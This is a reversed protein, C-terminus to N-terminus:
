PAPGPPILPYGYRLLLPLTLVTVLWADRRPLGGHWEVDPRVTIEGQRFSLPNGSLCHSRTPDAAAAAVPMPRRLFTALRGLTAVPDSVLDEYAVRVYRGRRHLLAEATLNMFMWYLAGKVVGYRPMFEERDRVDPLRLTKRWSHVVGRPDRVVHAARLDYAGSQALAYGYFANKSSDVVLPADVGDGVGVAAAYVAMQEFGAFPGAGRRGLLRDRLYRLNAMWRRRGVPLRRRAAEAGGFARRMAEQWFGCRAFAAGCGCARNEALGRDALYYAEGLFRVDPLGAVLHGLLTTGSRGAGCIYLLRVPDTMTM